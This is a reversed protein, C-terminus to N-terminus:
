SGLVFTLLIDHSFPSSASFSKFGIWNVIGLQNAFKNIADHSRALLLGSTTDEIIRHCLDFLTDGVHIREFNEGLSNLM